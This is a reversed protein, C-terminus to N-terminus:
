LHDRRGCMVSINVIAETQRSFICPFIDASMITLMITKAVDRSMNLGIARAFFIQHILVQLAMWLWLTELQLIRKTSLKNFLLGIVRSLRASYRRIKSVEALPRTSSTDLLIGCSKM